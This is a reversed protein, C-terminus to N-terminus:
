AALLLVVVVISVAAVLAFLAWVAVAAPDRHWRQQVPEILLPHGFQDFTVRGHGDHGQVLVPRGSEGNPITM